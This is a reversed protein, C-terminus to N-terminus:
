LKRSLGFPSAQQQRAAAQRRAQILTAPYPRHMPRNAVGPQLCSENSPAHEKETDGFVTGKPTGSFLSRKATLAWPADMGPPLASGQEKM